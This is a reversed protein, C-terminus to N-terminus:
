LFSSTAEGFISFFSIQRDVMGSLFKFEFEETTLGGFKGKEVQEKPPIKTTADRLSPAVWNSWM